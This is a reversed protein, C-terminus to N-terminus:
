ANLMIEGVLLKHNNKNKLGIFANLLMAKIIHKILEENEKIKTNSFSYFDYTEINQNIKNYYLKYDKFNSKHSYFEIYCSCELLSQIIYIVGIINSQNEKIIYNNKAVKEYNLNNEIFQVFDPIKEYSYINNYVSTNSNFNNVIKIAEKKNNALIDGLYYDIGSIKKKIIFM